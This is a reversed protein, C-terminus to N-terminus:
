AVSPLRQENVSRHKLDPKAIRHPQERFLCLLLMGFRLWGSVLRGRGDMDAIPSASRLGVEAAYITAAYQSQTLRQYWAEVGTAAFSLLVAATRTAYVYIAPKTLDFSGTEGDNTDYQLRQAPWAGKQRNGFLIRWETIM